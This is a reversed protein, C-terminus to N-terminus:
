EAKINATRIVKGWKETEGAIFKGFDASSGSLMTGGLDTLRARAVPSALMANIEKNLLAVIEAPTDKPAGVGFFASAEFGPVSEDVTQVDPLGPWRTATTVALPRLRGARIHELSNSVNDFAVQIRGSLLDTLVGPMGRYPVHVMDVGTMQKFLEACVHVSTGVGASGYSISGPNAKAYAIFEPVTKVPLSPTVEMVNPVRM